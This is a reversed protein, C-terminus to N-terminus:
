RSKSGEFNSVVLRTKFTLMNITGLINQIQGIRDLKEKFMDKNIFMTKPDEIYKGCHYCELGVSVFKELSQYSRVVESNSFRVKYEGPGFYQIKYTGGEVEESLVTEGLSDFAEISVKCTRFDKTICHVSLLGVTKDPVVSAVHESVNISQGNSISLTYFNSPSYNDEPFGLESMTQNTYEFKEYHVLSSGSGSSYQYSLALLSFFLITRSGM